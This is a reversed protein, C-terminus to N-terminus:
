TNSSHLAPRPVALKPSLMPCRPAREGRTRFGGGAARGTRKVAAAEQTHLGERLVIDSLSLPGGGPETSAQADAEGGPTGRTPLTCTPMCTAPAPGGPACHPVCPHALRRTRGSQLGAWWFCHRGRPLLRWLLRRWLLLHTCSAM